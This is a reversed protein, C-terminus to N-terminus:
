SVRITMLESIDALRDFEADRHLLPVGERICVAAILCDVTGRVTVGSQKAARYLGAAARFDSLWQIRLVDLELLMSEVRQVDQERLGRSVETLVIDVLAIDSAHHALYGDLLKVQPTPRDALFDIWVSSDVAIV